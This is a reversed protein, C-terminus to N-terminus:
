DKYQSIFYKLLDTASVIGVIVQNQVVPLAHFNCDSLIQAVEKIPTWPLVTVVQRTMVQQVTYQNYLIGQSTPNSSDFDDVFTIKQLDSTSIIGVVENAKVVPIHRIHHKKFLEEAKAIQDEPNLKVLLSSMISSVPDLSKM